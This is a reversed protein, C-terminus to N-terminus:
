LLWTNQTDEPFRRICADKRSGETCVIECIRYRIGQIVEDGGMAFGLCSEFVWALMGLLWALMGLVSKVGLDSTM